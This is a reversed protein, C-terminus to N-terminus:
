SYLITGPRPWHGPRAPAGAVPRM